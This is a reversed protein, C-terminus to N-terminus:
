GNSLRLGVNYSKFVYPKDGQIDVILHSNTSDVRNQVISVKIGTPTPLRFSLDAYTDPSYDVQPLTFKQGMVDITYKGIVAPVPFDIFKPPHNLVKM